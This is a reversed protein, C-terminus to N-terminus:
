CCLKLDLSIFSLLEKWAQENKRQVQNTVTQPQQELDSRDMVTWVGAIDLPVMVSFYIGVYTMLISDMEDPKYDATRKVMELRVQLPIYEGNADCQPVYAEVLPYGEPSTTQVSDRHHECYTKPRQQQDSPFLSTIM